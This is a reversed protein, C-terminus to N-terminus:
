RCPARSISAVLCFHMAGSRPGNIVAQSYGASNFYTESEGLAGSALTQGGIEGYGLDINITVPNTFTTDFYNVVYNVATVFAAPLSSQNQDYIPEIM